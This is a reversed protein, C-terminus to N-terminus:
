AALFVVPFRTPAVRGADDNVKQNDTGNEKNQPKEHHYKKDRPSPLIM